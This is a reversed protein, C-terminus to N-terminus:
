IRFMGSGSDSWQEEGGQDGTADAEDEARWSHCARLQRPDAARRRLQSMAEIFPMSEIDGVTGGLEIICV